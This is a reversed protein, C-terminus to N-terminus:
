YICLLRIYFRQWISCLLICALNGILTSKGLTAITVLWMDEPGLPEEQLFAELCKYLSASEQPRKALFSSKYVEPLPSFLRSDYQQIQKDSWYVLVHLLRLEGNIALPENMLIESDKVIGKEDTIYFELGGDSPSDLGNMSSSLCPTRTGEMEAIKETKESLDLNELAEETSIQFSSLLKLYLNCLDSGNTINWLKSM